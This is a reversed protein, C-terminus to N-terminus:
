VHGEGTRPAYVANSTEATFVEVDLEKQKEVKELNGLTSDRKEEAETELYLEIAGISVGMTGMSGLASM